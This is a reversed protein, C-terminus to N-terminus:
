KQPHRHPLGHRPGAAAEQLSRGASSMAGARVPKAPPRAEPRHQARVREELHLGGSSVCVCVCLMWWQWRRLNVDLWVSRRSFYSCSDEPAGRSSLQCSVSPPIQLVSRKWLRLDSPNFQQALLLQTDFSCFIAIRLILLPLIHGYYAKHAQDGPLFFWHKSIFPTWFDSIKSCVGETTLGSYRCSELM